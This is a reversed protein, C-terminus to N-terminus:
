PHPFQALTYRTIYDSLLCYANFQALLVCLLIGVKTFPYRIVCNVLDSPIHISGLPLRFCISTQLKGFAPSLLQM